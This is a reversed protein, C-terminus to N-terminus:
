SLRTLSHDNAISESRYSYNDLPIAKDTIKNRSINDSHLLIKDNKWIEHQSNHWHCVSSFVVNSPLTSSCVDSQTICAIHVTYGNAIHIILHINKFCRMIVLHICGRGILQILEHLSAASLKACICALSHRIHNSDTVINDVSFCRTEVM